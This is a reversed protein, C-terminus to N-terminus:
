SKSRARRPAARKTTSLKKFIWKGGFYTAAGILVWGLVPGAVNVVCNWPQTLSCESERTESPTPVMPRGTKEYWKRDVLKVQAEIQSIKAEVDPSWINAGTASVSALAAQVSAVVAGMQTLLIAEKSEPPFPPKRSVVDQIYLSLAQLRDTTTSM